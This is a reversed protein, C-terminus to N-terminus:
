RRRRAGHGGRRRAVDPEHALASPAAPRPRSPRAAGCEARGLAHDYGPQRAALLHDGAAPRLPRGPNEPALHTGIVVGALVLVLVPERGRVASAILYVLVVTALGFVFALLQIGLVPLSLFIGLVPGLGAGASVGLIDPSVLPNRFLGQYSAGAAALAAGVLLAAAVRPLRVQLVVTSVVDPVDAPWGFLWAGLVRGIEAPTIPFQGIGLAGVALGLVLALLAFPGLRGVELRRLVTSM